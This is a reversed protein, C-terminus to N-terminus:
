TLDAASPSCRLVWTRALRGLIQGISASQPAEPPFIHWHIAFLEILVIGLFFTPTAYFVFSLTTLAYDSPKNRRLV